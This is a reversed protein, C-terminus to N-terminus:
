AEPSTTPEDQMAETECSCTGREFLTLPTYTRGCSECRIKVSVIVNPEGMEIFGHSRLRGVISRTVSQLRTKLAGIQNRSERLDPTYEKSTSIDLCENLHKRVTQYCVFDEMVSEVDVGADRLHRQIERRRPTDDSDLREYYDEAQDDLVEMGERVMVARLVRGNIYTELDRLSYDQNRRRRTMRDDLNQLNHKKAVYDIKCGCDDPLHM